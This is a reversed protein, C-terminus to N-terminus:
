RRGAPDDLLELAARAAATVAILRAQLQQNEEYLLQVAQELLAVYEKTRPAM